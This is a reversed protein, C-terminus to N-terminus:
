EPVLAFGLAAANRRLAEDTSAIALPGLEQRWALAAALHIADLARVPEHPFVQRASFFTETGLARIQSLGELKDLAEALERQRARPMRGAAQVRVVARATELFTLPCALLPHAQDISAGLADNGELLWRLM